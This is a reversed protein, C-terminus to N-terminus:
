RAHIVFCFLYVCVMCAFVSSIDQSITVLTNADPENNPGEISSAVIRINKASVDVGGGPVARSREGEDEVAGEEGVM